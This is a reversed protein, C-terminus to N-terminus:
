DKLVGFKEDDDVFFFFFLNVDGVYIYKKIISDIKSRGALQMPVWVLKQGGVGDEKLV